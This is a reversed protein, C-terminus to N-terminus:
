SLLTRLREEDADSLKLEASELLSALQALTKVVGTESRMNTVIDLIKSIMAQVGETEGTRVRRKAVEILADAKPGLQAIDETGREAKVLFESALVTDTKIVADCMGILAFVRDAPDVIADLAQRGVAEDGQAAAIAAVTALASSRQGEDPISEAVELGRERKEFGAFQAAISGMLGFKSKSDRTEQEHQSRLIAYAEELAEVAEEKEERRWHDRAFGLVVAAIQTKDRVADLARDALEMSGVTLFGLSVQALLADRHVNEIRDAEVRAKEFTEVARSSRGADHFLNGIECYSRIREEDHEIEAARTLSRELLEAAGGKDDGSIKASAITNLASVAASSFEIGEITGSAREGEGDLSQKIAIGAMITDPHSMMAAAERAKEFDGKSAKVFGIREFAQGQFGPEEIAEALQLAYEDDDLEACKEAVAILLKDRAFPDDVSNALEAALDVNARDLYAPVVAAIADGRAEGGAISEAIYAACALLDTEADSRPVLHESM